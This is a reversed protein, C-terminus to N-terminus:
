CTLLASRRHKGACIFEETLATGRPRVRIGTEASQTTTAAAWGVGTSGVVVLSVIAEAPGEPLYHRHLVKRKPVLGTFRKGKMKEMVGPDPQQM